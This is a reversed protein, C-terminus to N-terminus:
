RLTQPFYQLMADIPLYTSKVLQTGTWAWPPTIAYRHGIRKYVTPQTVSLKLAM